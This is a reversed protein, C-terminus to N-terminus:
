SRIGLSTLIRLRLQRKWPTNRDIEIRPPTFIGTIACVFHRGCGGFPCMSCSFCCGDQEIIDTAIDRLRPYKEITNKVHIAIVMHRLLPYPNM